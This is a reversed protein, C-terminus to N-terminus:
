GTCSTAPYITAVICSGPKLYDMKTLRNMQMLKKLKIGYLQAISWITEGQQVTHYQIKAKNRKAKFYYVQDTIVKDVKSLDNLRRFKKESIGAKQAIQEIDDNEKAIIGPIGNIKTKTKGQKIVPFPHIDAQEVRRVERNFFVFDDNLTLLDENKDVEAPIIVNYVKDDPVEGKALWKNYRKLEEEDVLFDKAIQSLTKYVGERYPVLVLQPYPRKGIASEFAIKHALYKKFYWHTSKDIEMKSAGYYKKDVIKEAGSRGHYYSLM